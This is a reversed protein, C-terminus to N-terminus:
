GPPVYLFQWENLRQASEFAAYEPPFNASRVPAVESASFVGMIGGEPAKVLEFNGGTVPDRYLKRLYRRDFSFREDKLLQELTEPYRKHGGPGMQYYQAIAQRYADGIFLLEAEKERMAQQSALQGFAAMGFGMAAIILLLSLYTFGGERGARM